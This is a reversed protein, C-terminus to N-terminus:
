CSISTLFFTKKIVNLEIEVRRRLFCWFWLNIRFPFLKSCFPWYKWNDVVIRSKKSFKIKTSYHNSEKIRLLVFVNLYFLFPKNFSYYLPQFQTNWDRRNSRKRFHFHRSFHNEYLINFVILNCSKTLWLTLIFIM